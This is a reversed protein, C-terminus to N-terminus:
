SAAIRSAASIAGAQSLGGGVGYPTGHLTRSLAEALVEEMVRGDDVPQHVHNIRAGPVVEDFDAGAAAGQSAAQEGAREGRQIGDLDVAVQACAQFHLEGGIATERQELAVRELDIELVERVRTAARQAEDSIQRVVERRREEKM